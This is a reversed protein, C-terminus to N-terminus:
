TQATPHPKFYGLTSTQGTLVNKVRVSFAPQPDEDAGLTYAEAHRYERESYITLTADRVEAIYLWGGRHSASGLQEALYALRQAVESRDPFVIYVHKCFPRHSLALAYLEFATTLTQKSKGGVRIFIGAQVCGQADRVYFTPVVAPHSEDLKELVGNPVGFVQPGATFIALAASREHATVTQRMNDRSILSHTLPDTARLAELKQELETNSLENAIVPPALELAQSAAIRHIRELAEIQVYGCRVQDPSLDPVLSDLLRGAKLLRAFSQEKMGPKGELRMRQNYAILLQRLADARSNGQAVLLGLQRETDRYLTFWDARVKRAM